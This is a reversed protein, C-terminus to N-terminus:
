ALPDPMAIRPLYEIELENMLRGGETQARALVEPAANYLAYKEMARFMLLDHFYDDVDPEDTDAVLVQPAKQYKGRVTYGAADPTCGLLISKDTDIAFAVPRQQTTAMTGFQYLDRFSQLDTIPVLIQEDPLGISTTYLRFTEPKWERFSTLPTPALAAAAYSQQGAVTTFSFDREMFGWRRHKRQIATWSDIVWNKFLTNQKSLIGGLSTLDAGSAGCENRTKNVLELFTSV